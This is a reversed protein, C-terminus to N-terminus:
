AARADDTEPEAADPKLCWDVALLLVVGIAFVVMGATQHSMGQAYSPNVKYALVGTASVRIANALVAIPIAAVILTARLWAPREVFFVWAVALALLAYLSHVGSCGEEVLLKLRPLQIVNGERVVVWGLAQFFAEAVRTALGQLPGTIRDDWTKPLPIMLALYGIPFALARLLAGGYLTWALGALAVLMGFHQAYNFRQLRGYEYLLVGIVLCALGRGSPARAVARLKDWGDYIWLASVVPLLVCHSYRPTELYFHFRVALIPWFLALFAATAAIVVFWGRKKAADADLSDAPAPTEEASGSTM